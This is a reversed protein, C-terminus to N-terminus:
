ALAVTLKVLDDTAHNNTVTMTAGAVTVALDNAAWEPAKAIEALIGHGQEGAPITVTFTVDAATGQKVVITATAQAALGKGGTQIQVIAAAGPAAPLGAIIPTITGAAITPPQPTVGDRTWWGTHNAEWATSIDIEGTKPTYHEAAMADGLSTLTTEAGTLRNIVLGQGVKVFLPVADDFVQNRFGFQLM